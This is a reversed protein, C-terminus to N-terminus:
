TEWADALQWLGGALSGGSGTLQQMRAWICRLNGLMSSFCGEMRMGGCWFFVDGVGMGEVRMGDGDGDGMWGCRTSAAM